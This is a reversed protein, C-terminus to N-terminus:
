VGEISGGNLVCPSTTDPVVPVTSATVPDCNVVMLLPTETPGGHRSRTSLGRGGACCSAPVGRARQERVTAGEWGRGWGLVGCRRMADEGQWLAVYSLPVRRFGAAEMRLAWQRLRDHRERQGAAARGQGGRGAGRAGGGGARRRRRRAEPVGGGRAADLSDYVAAYHHPAEAFRKRFSAGNHSAEQETLAVVKPSV